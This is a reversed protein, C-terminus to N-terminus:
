CMLGKLKCTMDFDLAALDQKGLEKYAWGRNYYAHVFSSDLEIARSFDVIADERQGLLQYSSGRNYFPIPDNPDLEIASNFDGIASEHDGKGSYSRGRSNYTQSVKPDFQLAMDFDVIAKEYQRLHLYSNGRHFFVVGVRPNLDIAKTFMNVSRTYSKETFSIIGMQIYTEFTNKDATLTESNNRTVTRKSQKSTVESAQVPGHLNTIMPTSSIVVDGADSQIPQKGTSDPIGNNNCSLFLLFILLLLLGSVVRAVNFASM